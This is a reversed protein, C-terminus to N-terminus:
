VMTVASARRSTYRVEWGRANYAALFPPRSRRWREATTRRGGESVNRTDWWKQRSRASLRWFRRGVADGDSPPLEGVRRTQAGQM